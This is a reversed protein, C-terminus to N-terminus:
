ALLSRQSFERNPKRLLAWSTLPSEPIASQDIIEFGFHQYIPVDQPDQTELFCPRQERYLRQLMPKMLKSSFGRKQYPPDVGLIELYMHSYPVLRKHIDNLFRDVTQMRAMGNHTMGFIYRLPVTRLIGWFSVPYKESPSWVAVGELQQSTSYIEGYRLCTYIPFALMSDSIYRRLSEEPFYYTLIPYTWFARTLMKIAPEALKKDLKLLGPLDQTL